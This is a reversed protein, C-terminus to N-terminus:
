TLVSFIHIFFFLFFFPYYSFILFSACAVYSCCLSLHYWNLEPGTEGVTGVVRGKRRRRRRGLRHGNRVPGLNEKREEEEEAKNQTLLIHKSFTPAPYSLFSSIHYSSPFSPLLFSNPSFRSGKLHLFLRFHAKITTEYFM